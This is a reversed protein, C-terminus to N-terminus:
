PNAALADIARVGMRQVDRALAQGAGPVRSRRVLRQAGSKRERVYITAVYWIHTGTEDRHQTEVVVVDFAIGRIVTTKSEM